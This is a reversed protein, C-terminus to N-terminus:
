DDNRGNMPAELRDRIEPPIPIGQDMFFQEIRNLDLAFTEEVAKKGNTSDPGRKLAIAIHKKLDDRCERGICISVIPGLHSILLILM